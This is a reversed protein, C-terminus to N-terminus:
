CATSCRPCHKGPIVWQELGRAACTPCKVGPMPLEHIIIDEQGGLAQCALNNSYSVNFINCINNLDGSILIDSGYLVFLASGFVVGIAVGVIILISVTTLYIKKLSPLYFHELNILFLKFSNSVLKFFTCVFQYLPM